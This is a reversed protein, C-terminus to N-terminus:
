KDAQLEKVIILPAQKRNTVVVAKGTLFRAAVVWQPLSFYSVPIKQIAAAVAARNEQRLLGTCSEVNLASRLVSLIALPYEGSCTGLGSRAAAQRAKNM